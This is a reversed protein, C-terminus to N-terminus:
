PLYCPQKLLLYQSLFLSTFGLVMNRLGGGRGVVVGGGVQVPVVGGFANSSNPSVWGGVRGMHKRSELNQM